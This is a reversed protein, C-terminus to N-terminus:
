GLSLLTLSVLSATEARLRSPGLNVRQYGDSLAKKIEKDTFDGEPGILIVSPRQRDVVEGLNPAGAEYSAIFHSGRDREARYDFFAVPEAIIPVYPQLSQKAASVLIKEIREKKITRRESRQCVLPTIRGVGIETIKELMWELRSQNKILGFALHPLLHNPEVFSSSLVSLEVSSRHAEKIECTYRNGKGDMVYIQEGRGKRLVKACHQAEQDRLIIEDGEIDTSYFVNMKKCNNICCYKQLSICVKPASLDCYKCLHFPANDSRAIM